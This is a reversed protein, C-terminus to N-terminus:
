AWLSGFLAAGFRFANRLCRTGNRRPTPRSFPELFARRRLREAGAVLWASASLEARAEAAAAGGIDLGTRAAELVLGLEVLEARIAPLAAADGHHLARARALILESMPDQDLFREGEALIAEAEPSRSRAAADGRQAAYIGRYWGGVGEPPVSMSELAVDPRGRMVLVLGDCLLSVTRWPAWDLRGEYEALGAALERGAQWRGDDGRLGHVM